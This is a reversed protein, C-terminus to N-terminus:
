ASAIARLHALSASVGLREFDLNNLFEQLGAYGNGANSDTM